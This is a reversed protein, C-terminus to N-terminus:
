LFHLLQYYQLVYGLIAGGSVGKWNAAILITFIVGGAALSLINDSIGSFLPIMGHLYKGILLSFIAMVPNWAFWYGWASFGGIFKGASYENSTSGKFVAQVFGPLGSAERYRSALEGYAMNQAFGQLISLIWVAISLGWMYGTFYGVSPLILVPVRLAIALGQKWDITREYKSVELENLVDM